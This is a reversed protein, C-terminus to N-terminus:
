YPGDRSRQSEGFGDQVKVCPAQPIEANRYDPEVPEAQATERASLLVRLVAQSYEQLESPDGSRLESQWSENGYSAFHSVPFRGEIALREFSSPSQWFLLILIPLLPGM